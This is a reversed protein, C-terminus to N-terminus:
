RKTRKLGGGRGLGALTAYESSSSLMDMALGGMGSSLSALEDHVSFGESSPSEVSALTV